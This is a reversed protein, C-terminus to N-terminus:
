RELTVFIEADGEADAIIKLWQINRQGHFYYIGIGLRHGETPTPPEGDDYRVRIASNHVTICATRAKVVEKDTLEGIEASLITAFSVVKDSITHQRSRWAYTNGLQQM